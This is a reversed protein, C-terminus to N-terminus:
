RANREIDLMRTVDALMNVDDRLDAIDAGQGRVIRALLLLGAGLAAAALCLWLGDRDDM